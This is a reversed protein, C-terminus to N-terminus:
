SPRLVPSTCARPSFHVHPPRPPRPLVALVHSGLALGRGACVNLPLWEIRNPVKCLNFIFYQAVLEKAGGGQVVRGRKRQIGESPRSKSVSLDESNSTSLWVDQPEGAKIRRTRSKAEYFRRVGVRRRKVRQVRLVSGRLM